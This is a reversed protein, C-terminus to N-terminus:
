RAERMTIMLHLEAPSIDMIELAGPAEVSAPQLVVRHAGPTTMASLDVPVSFDREAAQRVMWRPGRVRLEVRTPEAQYSVGQPVNRFEVPVQLLVETAVDGGVASWILFALLLALLKLGPHNTFFGRIWNM